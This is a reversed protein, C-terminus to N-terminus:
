KDFFSGIADAFAEALKAFAAKVKVPNSGFNSAWRELSDARITAMRVVADRGFTRYAEFANGVLTGLMDTIGFQSVLAGVLDRLGFQNLVGGLVKHLGLRGLLWEM